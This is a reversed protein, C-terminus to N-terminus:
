RTTSKTSSAPSGHPRTVLACHRRDPARPVRRDMARWGRRRHDRAHRHAHPRSATTTLTNRGGIDIILDYGRTGNVFDYTTYDIVHDAGISRVMDVKATSCVGTVTGGLAKALQVAYTGVGGSAGIVLM